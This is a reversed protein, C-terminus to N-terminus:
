AVAVPERKRSRSRKPKAQAEAEAEIAELEATTPEVEVEAEPKAETPEAQATAEKQAAEAKSSMMPMVVVQYGDATFLMPSYANTLKFDVMGGCAKLVDALYGGDIRVFDQGDTDATIIAEGKEDPNAIIIKGEGITLDLPNEKPKDSLAKLAGVAKIVEVTDLHAFTNSETPILREYDPFQGDTGRWKYRIAETDIILSMGDLTEGSAEFGLRVRKAKRLAGTIGKLEDRHILVQGEIDEDFDLTVEALRFGDASVLKLKGEGAVFKVCQLVPRADDTATFPLVRNLAEALEISGINPKVTNNPSVRVEAFTMSTKDGVWATDELYSTNAGCVVKLKKDTVQSGSANGNAPVIKVINSGALAKIYGAFGKRGITFDMLLLREAMVRSLANVLTAKHTVFGDGSRKGVINLQEIKSCGRQSDSLQAFDM